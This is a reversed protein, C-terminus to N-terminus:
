PWVQGSRIDACPLTVGWNAPNQAVKAVEAGADCRQKAVDLAFTWLPGTSAHVVPLTFHMAQLVLVAGILVAGFAAFVKRPSTLLDAGLIVVLSLLFMSPVVAYRMLIPTASMESIPTSNWLFSPQANIQLAMIWPVTAGYLMVAPAVYAWGRFRVAILILVILIPVAAVVAGKWGYAHFFDGVSQRQPMWGAVIVQQLYGKAMDLIGVHAEGNNNRPVHLTAIVQAITGVIVAASIPWSKPRRISLFILPLFFAIQIESLVCALMVAALVGSQWWRTPRFLMIWPALWLLLWHFNAMNGSVELPLLPALVTISALVIRAPVSRVVDRSLLFVLAAVIGAGLCVLATVTTAFRDLPAIFLATNTILRPIFQLYGAFVEFLSGVPGYMHYQGLLDSGDEAWLTGRTVPPLRMRAAFAAVPVIVIAIIAIWPWTFESGWKAKKEPPVGHPDAPSDHSRSPETGDTASDGDRLTEDGADVPEDSGILDIPLSSMIEITGHAM